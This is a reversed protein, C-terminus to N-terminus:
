TEIASLKWPNSAESTGSEGIARVFTWHEEFKVPETKSGSLLEGTRADLVYDTVNARIRLTAFEDGREAWAEVLETARVAINEVRNLQGKGRLGALDTELQQRLEPAILNSIPALDGQGWAAQLRMFDDLREDKFRALDFGADYRRLVEAQTREIDVVEIARQSQLQSLGRSATGLFGPESEGRYANGQTALRHHTFRRYIWYAFGAILLIEILGIGGGGGMGGMGAHGSNRFLMSGIMGGALGGLLGRTFAGNSPNSPSSGFGGSTGGMQQPPQAYRSGTGPSTAGSRPAGMGRLGRSGSSRGSGIRAEADTSFLPVTSVTSVAFIALWVLCFLIGFRKLFSRM